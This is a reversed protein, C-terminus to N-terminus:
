VVQIKIEATVYFKFGALHRDKKAHQSLQTSSSWALLLAEIRAASKRKRWPM